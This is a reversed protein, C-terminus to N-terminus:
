KERALIFWFAKERVAYRGWRFCLFSKRRRSQHFHRGNARVEWSVGSPNFYLFSSQVDCWGFREINSLFWEAFICIRPRKKADSIELGVWSVQKLQTSSLNSRKKRETSFLDLDLEDEAWLLCVDCSCWTWINIAIILLFSM